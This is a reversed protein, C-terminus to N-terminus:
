AEWEKRYFACDFVDKGREVIHWRVNGSVTTEQNTLANIFSFRGCAKMMLFAYNGIAHIDEANDYRGYLGGNGNEDYFWVNCIKRTEM